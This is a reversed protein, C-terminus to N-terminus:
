SQRLFTELMKLGKRLGVLSVMVVLILPLLTIIEQLVQSMEVREVSQAVIGNRLPTKPFFIESSDNTKMIDFNSGVVEIHGGPSGGELSHVRLYRRYPGIDFYSYTTEMLNDVKLVWASDVYEYIRICEGTGWFCSGDDSTAQAAFSILFVKKDEAKFVVFYKNSDGFEEMNYPISSAFCRSCGLLCFLILFLAIILIKKNKM